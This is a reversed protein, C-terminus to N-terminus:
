IFFSGVFFIWFFEGRAHNDCVASMRLDILKISGRSNSYGFLNCSLPHFEATTIVETLEELNAPKNDVIDLSLNREMLSVLVKIRYM